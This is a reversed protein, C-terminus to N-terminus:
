NQATVDLEVDTRLGVVVSETTSLEILVERTKTDYLERPHDSYLSKSAM